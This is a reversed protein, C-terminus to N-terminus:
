RNSEPDRKKIILIGGETTLIFEGPGVLEEGHPSGGLVASHTSCGSTAVLAAFFM